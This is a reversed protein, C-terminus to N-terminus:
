KKKKETALILLHLPYRLIYRSVRHTLSNPFSLPLFVIWLCLLSVSGIILVVTALWTVDSVVLSIAAMFALSVMSLSIGLLPIALKISCLSLHLDHLMAWILLIAVIISTYMAITNSLVFIHFMRKKVLTAMGKYPHDDSSNYRGPMTFGAAFTVTAILTAVLLLTNVRESYYFNEGVESTNRQHTQTAGAYRLALWTLRKQFTPTWYGHKAAVDLATLGKDNRIELNVRKDWTLIHVVRAQEGKSALHLPTNGKEMDIQNILVALEPKKLVYSVVDVRGNMAAVHLINQGNYDLLEKSDPRLKLFEQIINVHGRKSAWHIPFSGDEDRDRRYTAAEYGSRGLFYCVGEIYGISSAYSLPSRGKEDYVCFYTSQRELLAKLVDLNRAKIAAHVVSEGEVTQIDVSGNQMMAKVLELQGAEAAMFLPSMKKGNPLTSAQPSEKVLVMASDYHHYKMAAHLATNKESNGDVLAEPRFIRLQKAQRLLSNVTSLNGSAAALHLPIDGTSNTARFLEPYDVLIPEVLHHHGLSAALHLVTNGQPSLQQQISSINSQVLLLGYNPDGITLARYLQPDMTGSPIEDAQAVMNIGIITDEGSTTANMEMDVM